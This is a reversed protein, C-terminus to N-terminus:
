EMYVLLQSSKEIGENSLWQNLDTKQPEQGSATIINEYSFISCVLRPAEYQRM